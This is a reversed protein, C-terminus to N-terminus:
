SAAFPTMAEGYDGWDPPHDASVKDLPSHRKITTGRANEAFSDSVFKLGAVVKNLNGGLTIGIKFM